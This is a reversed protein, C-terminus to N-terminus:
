RREFAVKAIGYHIAQAEQDWVSTRVYYQHEIQSPEAWQVMVDLGGKVMKEGTSLHVSLLTATSVGYPAVTLAIEDDNIWRPRSASIVHHPELDVWAIELSDVDIIGLRHRENDVVALRTGDDSWVPWTLRTGEGTLQHVDGASLDKLYIESHGTRESRFAIMEGCPSVDPGSDAYESAIIKEHSGDKLNLAYIDQTGAVRMMFAIREGDPFWSLTGLGVFGELDHGNFVEDIEHTRLDLIRIGGQGAAILAIREGDRSLSFGHNTGSRDTLREWDTLVYDPPPYQGIIAPPHELAARLIEEQTMGFYAGTLRDERDWGTFERFATAYDAVLEPGFEEVLYDMAVLGFRYFTPYVELLPRADDLPVFRALQHARLSM